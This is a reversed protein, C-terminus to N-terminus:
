DGQRLWNGPLVDTVVVIGQQKADVQENAQRGHVDYRRYNLSVAKTRVLIQGAEPQPTPSEVLHLNESGIKKLQWSKM